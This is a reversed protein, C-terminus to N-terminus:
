YTEAHLGQICDSITPTIMQKNISVAVHKILAGMFNNVVQVNDAAPINTGDARQIKGSLYLSINNMDIMEETNGAVTFDLADSNLPNQSNYRYWRGEDLAVQVKVKEFVETESKTCPCETAM